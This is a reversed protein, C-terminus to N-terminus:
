PCWLVAVGSLGLIAFALPGAWMHLFSEIYALKPNSPLYRVQVEARESPNRSSAGAPSTFQHRRGKSDTFVIVPLYSKTDDSQRMEHAVVNGVAISGFFLVRLCHAFLWLALALCIAGVAAFYIKL